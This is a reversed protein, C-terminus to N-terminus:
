KQYIKRSQELVRQFPPYDAFRGEREELFYYALAAAERMRLNHLVQCLQRYGPRLSAGPLPVHEELSHAGMAAHIRLLCRGAMTSLYPDEPHYKLLVLCHYLAEATAGSAYLGEIMEYDAAAVWQRFRRSDQLFAAGTEPRRLADMEELLAIRQPCAPHTRLSDAHFPGDDPQGMRGGFMTAEEELWRSKFPYGKTNLAARLDLPEPYKERDISDLLALCRTAQRADYATNAFYALGRADAQAEQERSNRRHEYVAKGLLGLAETKNGQKGLRKLEKRFDEDDAAAAYQEM